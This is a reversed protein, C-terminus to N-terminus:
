FPIIYCDCPIIQRFCDEFPYQATGYKKVFFSGQWGISFLTRIIMQYLLSKTLIYLDSYM